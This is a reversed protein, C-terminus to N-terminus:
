LVFEDLALVLLSRFVVNDISRTELLFDVGEGEVDIKM